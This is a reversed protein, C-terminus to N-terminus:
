SDLDFPHNDDYPDYAYVPHGWEDYAVGDKVEYGESTYQKRKGVRAEPNWTVRRLNNKAVRIPSYNKRGKERKSAACSKSCCLGWGRALNRTDTIYEKQCVDCKRKKTAM